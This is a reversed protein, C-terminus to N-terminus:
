TGDAKPAPVFVPKVDETTFRVAIQYDNGERAAGLMATGRNGIKWLHTASMSHDQLSAIDLNGNAQLPPGHRATLQDIFDKWCADMRAEMGDGTISATRLTIENLGGDGCWDFYLSTDMGGTKRLTQFVGNLGTRAFMTEPLTMKVLGSAKLKEVVQGRQDGFELLELVMAAPPAPVDATLPHHRELWARDDRHIKELPISVERRDARLLTVSTEDRKLFRADISKTGEANRWQRSEASLLAASVLFQVALIRAIM